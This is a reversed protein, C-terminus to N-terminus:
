RFVSEILPNFTEPKDYTFNFNSKPKKNKHKRGTHGRGKPDEFGVLRYLATKGKTADNVIKLGHVDKLNGISSLLTSRSMCFKNELQASTLSEYRKEILFIAMDYTRLSKMYHKRRNMEANIRDLGQNEFDFNDRKM